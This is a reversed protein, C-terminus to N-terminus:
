QRMERLIRKSLPDLDAPIGLTEDQRAQAKAQANHAVKALKFMQRWGAAIDDELPWVTCYRQARQCAVCRLDGTCFALGNHVHFKHCVICPGMLDLLDLLSMKAFIM